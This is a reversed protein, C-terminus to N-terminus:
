WRCGISLQLDKNIVKLMSEIKEYSCDCLKGDDAYPLLVFVSENKHTKTNYAIILTLKETNDISNM